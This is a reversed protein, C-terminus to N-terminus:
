QQLHAKKSKLYRVIGVHGQRVAMKMPTIQLLYLFLNLLVLVVIVSSLVIYYTLFQNVELCTPM